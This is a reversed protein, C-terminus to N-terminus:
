GLKQLSNSYRGGRGEELRGVVEEQLQLKPHRIDVLFVGAVHEFEYLIGKLSDEIFIVPHNNRDHGDLGGRASWEDCMHANLSDMYGSASTRGFM